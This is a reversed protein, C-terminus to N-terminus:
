VDNPDLKISGVWRGKSMELTRKGEHSGKTRRLM